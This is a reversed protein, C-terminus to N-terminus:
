WVHYTIRYGATTHNLVLPPRGGTETYSGGCVFPYEHTSLLQLCRVGSESSCDECCCARKQHLHLVYKRGHSLISTNIAHELVLPPRKGVVTAGREFRADKQASVATQIHICSYNTPTSVIHGHALYASSYIHIRVTILIVKPQTIPRYRM